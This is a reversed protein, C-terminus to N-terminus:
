ITNRRGQNDFSSCRIGPKYLGLDKYESGVAGFFILTSTTVVAAEALGNRIMTAAQKLATVGGDWTTILTYSPGIM